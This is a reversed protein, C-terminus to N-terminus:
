EKDRKFHQSCHQHLWEREISIVTRLYANSTLILENYIVFAPTGKKRLARLSSSPHIDVGKEMLQSGTSFGIPVYRGDEDRRRAAHRFFGAVLCRRVLNDVSEEAIQAAIESALPNSLGWSVMEGHQMLKDLQLRIAEASQLTRLNLFHDLCFERRKEYRSVQMFANLANVLTLHDGFESVFRKHARKATDRKSAPSILISGEVSLVAALSIMADVCGVRLSELLSRGLMPPVPIRAMLRGVTQLDMNLDLAGLICLTELASGKIKPPIEDMLPFTQFEKLQMSTNRGKLVSPSSIQVKNKVAKDCLVIINLMTAAADTRLIEPLPYKELKNFEDSTYLRFLTGRETRGARGHRQQAEAATIPRTRLVDVFVGKDHIVSRVKALGSDIVYVIGPITLSTEAINTAFIVKRVTGRLNDPVPELAHMQEDPSLAAYLPFVRLEKVENSRKMRDKLIAIASMIEEQGPLFVLIDGNMPKSSHIQIAATVVTDFLDTFPKAIYFVKVPYSRGPIDLVSVQLSTGKEFFRAIKDADTTASMIVVKFPLKSRIMKAFLENKAAFGTAPSAHKTSASTLTQKVVGLILDTNVSREHVEDIIVHSYRKKLGMAGGSLAERLLVGDTVYRINTVGRKSKDQFRVAYGVEEGLQAERESAVRTAVTIAAVRRPQTVVVSASSDSNVILQPLQTTKGSGTEGIVILVDNAALASLIQDSKQLIPLHPTPQAADAEQTNIPKGDRHRKM